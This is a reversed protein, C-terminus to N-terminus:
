AAPLAGIDVILKAGSEDVTGIYVGVGGAVVIAGAAGAYVRLGAAFAPTGNNVDVELIEGNRIVTYMQDGTIAGTTAAPADARLGEKTLIVGYCEAASAAVLQGNGDFTVAFLDDDGATGVTGDLGAAARARHKGPNRLNSLKAM